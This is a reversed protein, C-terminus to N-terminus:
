SVPKKAQECFYKIRQLENIKETLQQQFKLRLPEHVVNDVKQRLDTIENELNSIVTEYIQM